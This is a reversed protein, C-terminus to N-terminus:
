VIFSAALGMLGGFFGGWVVLWGLHERIMTQIIEKVMEPTLEELRAQVILEVKALLQDLHLSESIASAIKAQITEDDGLEHIAQKIKTIMPEKLQDLAEPGGFMNIMAGFPSELVGAKLKDFLVEYDITELLPKLDFSHGETQEKFFREINERTFFQEMMLRRIGVKFEEFKNPIIGSGYLGPVREFLMHIALWNTVAGSLAYFGISLIQDRGYPSLYGLIIVAVAVGNTIVSKSIGKKNTSHDM